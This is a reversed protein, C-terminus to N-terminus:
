SALKIFAANRARADGILDRWEVVEISGRFKGSLETWRGRGDATTKWTSTHIDLAGVIDAVVYCYFVCDPAVRVRQRNLGEIEGKELQNLYRSVQNLPSYRESYDERGPKKFEILLVRKLPDESEVGLGHIKDWIVIDPRDTSQAESVLQSIPVDSAFYTAFTLREDVVWLDHDSTEIRNSDDGRVRMPCIFQHLTEELHFDDEGTRERVRSILLEMVDLVLKRRLVYETLQRQEEAKVDDAAARVLEAFDRSLAEGTGLKNVVEQVRRDRETDRRIRTPILAQAFQEPKVANKPTKELLEEPSAFGFSPYKQLFENMTTLRSSDFAKVEDYLAEESVARACVKTIEDAVAESFNFNTREQNVREDLFDGQVCGHYVARANEGFRGVGLLGDVKRTTVTRGNAVFHLQHNGDFDSSAAKDFVFHDIGLAGFEGADIESRGREEILLDKIASPFEVTQDAVTLHVPPSQGLIFEALFHSGFHRVITEPRSPFKGQYATGRLGRLTIGTGSAASGEELEEVIEGQVQENKALVFNFARRFLKGEHEYISDVSISEFADLWLLRGIGKGGRNSKFDTDTTLFADFRGPDLGVGSDLVTIVHESPKAGLEITVDIRGPRGLDDVAHMANSVAEFMPQLAEAASTPKPLRRVRNIIDGTLSPM